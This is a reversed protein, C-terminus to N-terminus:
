IATARPSHLSRLHARQPALTIRAKVRRPTGSDPAASGSTKKVTKAAHIPPRQYRLLRFTLSKNEQAEWDLMDCAEDIQDKTFEDTQKKM